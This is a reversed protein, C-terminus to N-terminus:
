RLIGDRRRPRAPVDGAPTTAPETAWPPTEAQRARLEELERRLDKNVQRLAALDDRPAGQKRAPRRLSEPLKPRRVALRLWSGILGFLGRKNYRALSASRPLPSILLPEPAEPSNERPLSIKPPPAAPQLAAVKPATTRPKTAKAKATRGQAVGAKSRPAARKRPSAKARPRRAIKARPKRPKPKARPTVEVQAEAQVPAQEDTLMFGVSVDRAATDASAVELGAREYAAEALRMQREDEERLRQEERRSRELREFSEQWNRITQM